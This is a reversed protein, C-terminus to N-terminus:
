DGQREESEKEECGLQRVYYLLAGRRRASVWPKSVISPSGDGVQEADARFDDGDHGLEAEGLAQDRHAHQEEVGQAAQEEVGGVGTVEESARARPM